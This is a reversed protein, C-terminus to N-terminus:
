KLREILLQGLHMHGALPDVFIQEIAGDAPRPRAAVGIKPRPRHHVAFQELGAVHEFLTEGRPAAHQEAIGAQVVVRGRVRKQHPNLHDLGALDGPRM